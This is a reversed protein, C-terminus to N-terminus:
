HDSKNSSRFSWVLFFFLFCLVVIAFHLLKVFGFPSCERVGDFVAFCKLLGDSLRSIGALMLEIAELFSKVCEVQEKDVM